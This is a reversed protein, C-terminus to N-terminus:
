RRWTCFPSYYKTDAIIDYAIWQAGNWDAKNLLGTSFFAVPSWASENGKNDWSMIKWFYKKAPQLANGAYSVQISSVAAIKKSDWVNGENNALKLSDDAVLLRYATQLVNNQTSQLEWSFMPLAGIGLPNNRFGCRLNSVQLQATLVISSNILGIVLLIRKINQLLM